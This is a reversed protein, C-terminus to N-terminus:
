TSPKRPLNAVDASAAEAEAAHAVAEAVAPAESAEAEAAARDESAEAVAVRHAAVRVESAEARRAVLLLTHPLAAGVAQPAQAATHAEEGTAALTAPEAAASRHLTIPAPARDTAM